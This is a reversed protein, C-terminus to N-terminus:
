LVIEEAVSGFGSEVIEQGPQDEDSFAQAVMDNASALRMGRATTLTVTGALVCVVGAAALAFAPGPLLSWGEWWAPKPQIAEEIGAWVSADPALRPAARLLARTRLVAARFERCDPCKGLHTEVMVLKDPSYGADDDSLAMIDKIRDCNM